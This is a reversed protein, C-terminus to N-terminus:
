DGGNSMEGAVAPTGSQGHGRGCRRLQLCQAAAQLTYPACLSRAHESPTGTRARATLQPRRPASHSGARAHHRRQYNIGQPQRTRHPRPLSKLGRQREGGGSRAFSLLFLFLYGGKLAMFTQIRCQEMAKMEPTAKQEWMHAEAARMCPAM